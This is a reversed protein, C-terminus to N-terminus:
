QSPAQKHHGCSGAAHVVHSVPGCAVPSRSSLRRSEAINRKLAETDEDSWSGPSSLFADYNAKSPTVKSRRPRSRRAPSVMVLDEKDRRLVRPDASAIVDEALRLPAPETSIDVPKAEKAM